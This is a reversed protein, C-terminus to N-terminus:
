EYRSRFSRVIDDKKLVIVSTVLGVAPPIVWMWYPSSEVAAYIGPMEESTFNQADFEALTQERLETHVDSTLAFFVLAFVVCFWIAVLWKIKEVM